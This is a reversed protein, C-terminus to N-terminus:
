QGRKRISVAGRHTFRRHIVGDVELMTTLNQHHHWTNTPLKAGLPAAANALRDDIKRVMTMDIDVKQRAFGAGEFDPYGDPYRVINGYKDKYVLTGDLDSWATGGGQNIWKDLDPSNKPTLGKQCIEGANHALV